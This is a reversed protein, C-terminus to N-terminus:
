LNIKKDGSTFLTEFSGVGKKVSIKDREVIMNTKWPLTLYKKVQTSEMCKSIERNPAYDVSLYAEGRIILSKKISNALATKFNNIKLSIDEFDGSNVISAISIWWDAAMTAIDLIKNKEDQNLMLSGRILDLLDIFDYRSYVDEYYEGLGNEFLLEKLTKYPTIKNEEVVQSEELVDDCYIFPIYKTLGDIVVKVVSVLTEKGNIITLGFIIDEGLLLYDLTEQYNTTIDLDESVQFLVKDQINSLSILHSYGFSIRGSINKNFGATDQAYFFDIYHKALDRYYNDKDNESIYRLAGRLFFNENCCEAKKSIDAIDFYRNVLQVIDKINDDSFIAKWVKERRLDKKLAKVGDIMSTKIGDKEITVDEGNEYREYLDSLLNDYQHSLTLYTDIEFLEENKFQKRQLDRSVILRKEIFKSVARKIEENLNSM